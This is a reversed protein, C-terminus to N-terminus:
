AGGKKKRKRPRKKREPQEIGEFYLGKTEEPYDQCMKEAFRAFDKEKGPLPKVTKSDACLYAPAEETWVLCDLHELLQIKDSEAFCLEELLYQRVLKRAKPPLQDVHLPTKPIGFRQYRVYFSHLPLLGGEDAGYCFLGAYHLSRISEPNALEPPIGPVQAFQDFPSEQSAGRPVPLAEGSSFFAVHGAADVAFFTTDMSHAAPFDVDM